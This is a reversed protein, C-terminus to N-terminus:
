NNINFYHYPWQTYCVKNFLPIFHHSEPNFSEPVRMLLRSFYRVCKMYIAQQHLALRRSFIMAEIGRRRLSSSQVEERKKKDVQHPFTHGLQM